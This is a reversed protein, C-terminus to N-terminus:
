RRQREAPPTGWLYAYGVYPIPAVFGFADEALVGLLGFNWRHARTRLCGNVTPIVVLNRFDGQRNTFTALEGYLYWRLGLRGGLGLRYTPFTEGINETQYFYGASFNVFQRDDGVTLLAGIDGIIPVGTTFTISPLPFSIRNALGVHLGPRITHRLRQNFVPGLPVILGAGLGLSETLAWDVEGHVPFISNVRGGSPFPLATQLYTLDQFSVAPAPSRYYAPQGTRTARYYRRKPVFLGLYRLQDIPIRSVYDASRLRFLLENNETGEWRGLLKTYDLLILQHVQSTDGAEVKYSIRKLYAQASLLVPLIVLTLLAFFRM